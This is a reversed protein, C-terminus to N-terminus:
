ANIKRCIKSFVSNNKKIGKELEVKSEQIYEPMERWLKDKLEM